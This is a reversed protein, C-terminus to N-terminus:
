DEESAKTGSSWGKKAKKVLSLSAIFSPLNAIRKISISYAPALVLHCHLCPRPAVELIAIPGEALSSWCSVVGTPSTSHGVCCCAFIVKDCIGLAHCLCMTTTSRMPIMIYRFQCRGLVTTCAVSSSKPFAHM